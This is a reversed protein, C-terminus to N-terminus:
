FGGFNRAAFDLLEAVKPQGMQATSLCKIQYRCLIATQAAGLGM